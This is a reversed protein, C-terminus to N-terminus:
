CSASKETSEDLYKGLENLGEWFVDIASGDDSRNHISSAGLTRQGFSFRRSFSALSFRPFSHPNVFIDLPRFYEAVSKCEAVVADLKSVGVEARSKKSRVAIALFKIM